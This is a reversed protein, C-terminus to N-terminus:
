STQVGNVAFTGSSEIPVSGLNATPDGAAAKLPEELTVSTGNLSPAVQAQTTLWQAATPHIQATGSVKIAPDVSQTINADSGGDSDSNGGGSCGVLVLAAIFCFTKVGGLTGM